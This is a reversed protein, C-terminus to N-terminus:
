LSLHFHPEAGEREDLFTVNPEASVAAKLAKVHAEDLGRSRVDVAGSLLHRSVFIGRAAQAELVEVVREMAGRKRRKAGKQVGEYADVVETAAAHNEYLDVIDDGHELKAVMLEAQRKISRTGGTVVLPRAVAAHYREAIRLLKDRAEDTLRMDRARIEVHALKTIRRSGELGVLKGSKGAKGPRDARETQDPKDKEREHKSGKAAGPSADDAPEEGLKAPGDGTRFSRKVHAAPTTDKAKSRSKAAVADTSLSVASAFALAPLLRLFSSLSM